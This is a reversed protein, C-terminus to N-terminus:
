DGSKELRHACADALAREAGTVQQGDVLVIGTKPDFTVTAVELTSDAAYKWGSGLPAIKVPFSYLERTELPADVDAPAVSHGDATVGPKYDADGTAVYTAIHACLEAPAFGGSAGEGGAVAPTAALALTLWGAIHRAMKM